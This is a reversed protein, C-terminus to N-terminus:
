LISEMLRRTYAHRPSYFIDEVPAAEVIKGKQMIYVFDALEAVVGLDHTIFLVGTNDLRSMRYIEALIQQQVTVDLATTPEDALLFRPHATMACAIMVRQCMGGSLEFPYKKMLQEPNQLNVATLGAVAQSFAEKRSIRQHQLIGEVIQNGVTYLPNLAAEPDQFIMAMVTGNLKKRQRPPLRRIETDGVWIERTRISAEPPLLDMVSLATVSKGSGSEGVLVTIKGRPVELSIGNVARVPEAVAPFEVCLNRVLLSDNQHYDM